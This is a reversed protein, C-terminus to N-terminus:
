VPTFERFLHTFRTPDPSAFKRFSRVCSNSSVRGRVKTFLAPTPLLWRLKREEHTDSAEDPEADGEDEAGKKFERM